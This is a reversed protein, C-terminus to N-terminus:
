QARVQKGNFNYESQLGNTPLCQGLFKAASDAYANGMRVIQAASSNRELLDEDLSTQAASIRLKAAFAILFLEASCVALLAARYKVSIDQSLLLKIM